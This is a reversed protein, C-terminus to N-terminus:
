ENGTTPADCGPSEDVVGHDVLVYGNLIPVITAMNEGHRWLPDNSSRRRARIQLAASREVTDFQVVPSADDDRVLM